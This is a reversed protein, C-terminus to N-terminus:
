EASTVKATAEGAAPVNLVKLKLDRFRVETAPGSHLQLAFRGRRAGEPDDLDVCLNGNIWTQIRSGEARIKYDNWQGKRVFQEGPKDWLLARGLEEYLKGWWDPGIDAQYGRAEGHEAEQSRFQVGSNGVDDVLKVQFTL